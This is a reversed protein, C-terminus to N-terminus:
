GFYHDRLWELFSRPWGRYYRREIVRGNEDIFVILWGEQGRWWYGRLPRGTDPHVASITGDRNETYDTWPGAIESEHGARQTGYTYAGSYDGPPIGIAQGAAAATMGLQIKDYCGKGIPALKRSSFPPLLFYASVVVVAALVAFLLMKKRKM